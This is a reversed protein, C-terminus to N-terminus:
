HARVDANHRASSPACRRRALTPCWRATLACEACLPYCRVGAFPAFVCSGSGLAFTVLWRCSIPDCADDFHEDTVIGQELARNLARNVNHFDKTSDILGMSLLRYLAARKSIPEDVSLFTKLANIREMTKRTPGRMQPVATGNAKM